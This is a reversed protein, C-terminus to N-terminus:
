EVSIFVSLRTKWIQLKTRMTVKRGSDTALTILSRAWFLLAVLIVVFVIAPLWLGIDNM